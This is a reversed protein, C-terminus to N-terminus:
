LLVLKKKKPNFQDPIHSNLLMGTLIVAGFFGASFFDEAPL